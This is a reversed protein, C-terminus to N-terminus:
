AALLEQQIAALVDIVRCMCDETLFESVPILIHRRMYEQEHVFRAHDASPVFNWRGVLTSFLVGRQMATSLVADRADRPVLAPVAFAVIGSPLSPYLLEIPGNPLNAYLFESNARRRARTEALDCRRRIDLSVTSTAAPRPAANMIRYYRDYAKGTRELLAAADSGEASLLEANLYLHELYHDISESEIPAVEDDRTSVEVEPRASLLVAGDPVPLVKNLSFLAFDGRTGFADGGAYDSLLGHACDELVYIGHSTALSRVSDFRAEYGLPHVVIILRIRKESRVLREVDAEDPQLDSTLRYFLVRINRQLFPRIVGEAIYAPMLVSDTPDMEIRRILDGIAGRGTSLECASSSPPIRNGIGSERNPMSNRWDRPLQRLLHIM